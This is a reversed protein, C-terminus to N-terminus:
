KQAQLEQDDTRGKARLAHCLDILVNALGNLRLYEYYDIQSRAYAEAKAFSIPKNDVDKEELKAQLAVQYKYRADAEHKRVYGMYSTFKIAEGIALSGTVTDRMKYITNIDDEIKEIFDNM